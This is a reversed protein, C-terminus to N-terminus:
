NGHSLICVSNKLALSATYPSDSTTGISGAPRVRFIKVTTKDKPCNASAKLGSENCITIKEHADCTETPVTGKAFYETVITSKGSPDKDCLGPIALKGSISCVQAKVVSEPVPFEKSVWKNDAHISTMIRAWMRKQFQTDSGIDKNEDYGSWITATIYESYGSFWIDNNNQTTGSKGVVYQGEVKSAKASGYTIVDRMANSLLYATSEKIVTHTNPTSELIVRGYQDLVKTYYVPKTYIGKNAIAAFAANVEINSVGITIGGLALSLNVDSMVSGDELTVNDVLTTFGFDKSYEYGLRPTVEEMFRVTVINMSDAIGLRISSLGRYSNGWWNKIQRGQPDYYVSDDKVSALTYNLRDLAPAFVATVKFLSGPQRYTGTARNLSLSSEKKGRGGVLAKVHGTKQDMITFSSQPQPTFAVNEGLIVDGQKSYESKFNNICTQAEEISTFILKFSPNNLLVRNYYSVNTNSFNEVSGDARKVSWAWSFSYYTKAPYNAPDSIERECIDQMHTDQTSYIQLGGSYLATYAQTYTYGKQEQLDKIIESVLVDTFYSYPTDNPNDTNIVQIRSYVDDAIAADYEEKSIHKNKLMNKLVKARRTANENPNTIPNFKTPSQTIAAIVAAESINIDIASKNFYRLSAAEVGYSGAGLNITNLYNQLIIEKTLVNELELALYQEQIKRKFLAALNDEYGGNEFVNNKLLQQTLTSAGESFNGQTLAVFGARFIGKIDIGEHEYFREDEIDIFAHQLPTSIQSIEVPKRNSGSTVLRDIEKNDTDYIVTAVGIPAINIDEVSPANDIISSIMGLGTFLGGTLLLIFSLILLKFGGVLLKTTLKRKNSVIKKHKDIVQKYGFNM